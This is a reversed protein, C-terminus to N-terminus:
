TRAGRIDGFITYTIFSNGVIAAGGLGAPTGGGGGNQGSAGLAGGDGGDGANDPGNGGGGGAVLTGNGGNGGSQNAPGGDGGSGAIYGAGGGGGGGGDTFGKDSDDDGGGGGGGGGGIIGLNNVTIPITVQIATGGPTGSSGGPRGDGGNGGAGVIYGGSNINLDAIDGNSFASTTLAAAATTSSGVVGGAAVTYTVWTLGTSYRGAGAASARLDPNAVNTNVSQVFRSRGLLRSIRIETGSTQNQGTNGTSALRRVDSNDANLSQNSTRYLETNIQSFKIDTVPLTM